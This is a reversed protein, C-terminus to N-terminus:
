TITLVSNATQFLFHHALAIEFRTGEFDLKM